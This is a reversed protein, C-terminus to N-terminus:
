SSNKEQYLKIWSKINFLRTFIAALLSIIGALLIVVWKSGMWDRLLYFYGALLGAIFIYMLLSRYHINIATKRSFYFMCLLGCIGQSAIAAFCCGLAGMSPILLLNLLINALMAVLNIYCFPIIFGTATMATGYVQVLSYGILAPLCWRLVEISKHDTHHYLIEQIWPALFFVTAAIAISYLMLLHRSNLIVDSVNDGKSWHRAIYPLLFSAVLYGVMNAADLLRFSAAYIGAENAGNIYGRGLLFGDLRNHVSMLLVTIAFPLAAKFVPWASWSGNGSFAIGKKLLVLIAFLIATSTCLIQIWLFKNISIVGMSAPFYIFGGCLIIMLIKDLVSLWADTSFWQMATVINRFFVFLSTLVQIAVVLNFIDWREIGACLAAIYVVAVYLLIFSFKIFLFRRLHSTFEKAGAALKSNFFSSFGWDLLFSFLISFGFLSFYTGYTESGVSNQVQRDIGFIWIPKIIVNLLILLGLSSYFRSSAKM